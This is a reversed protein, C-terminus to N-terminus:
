QLHQESCPKRTASRYQQASRPYQISNHLTTNKMTNDNNKDNELDVGTNQDNDVYAADGTPTLDVTGKPDDNDDASDWGSNSTNTTTSLNNDHLDKNISPAYTSDNNDFENNNSENDNDLITNNRDRFILGYPNQWALIHM